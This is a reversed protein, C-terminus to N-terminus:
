TDHLPLTNEFVGIGVTLDELEPFRTAGYTRARIRQFSRTITVNESRPRVKLVQAITARKVCAHASTRRLSQANYLSGLEQYSLLMPTRSVGTPDQGANAPQPESMIAYSPFPPRPLLKALPASTSTLRHENSKLYNRVSVSLTRGKVASLWCPSSTECINLDTHSTATHKIWKKASPRGLM